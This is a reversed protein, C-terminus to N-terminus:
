LGCTEASKRIRSEHSHGLNRHLKFADRKQKETPAEQDSETYEEDDDIVEGGILEEPSISSGDPVNALDVVSPFNETLYNHNYVDLDCLNEVELWEVVGDYANIAVGHHTCPTDVIWNRKESGDNEALLGCSISLNVANFFYNKYKSYTPSSVQSGQLPVEM